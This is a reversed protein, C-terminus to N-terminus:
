SPQAAEGNDPNSPLDRDEGNEHEMEESNQLLETNHALGHERSKILKKYLFGKGKPYIFLLIIFAIVIPTLFAATNVQEGLTM